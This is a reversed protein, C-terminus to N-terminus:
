SDVTDFEYRQYWYIEDVFGMKRYLEQPKGPDDANIILSRCNRKVGEEVWRALM